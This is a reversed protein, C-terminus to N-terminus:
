KENMLHKVTEVLKILDNPKVLYESAGANIANKRDAEQTKGTFFLIPTEADTRRIIECLEVGSIDPLAYDLIYVDFAQKKMLSIAIDATECSTVSYKWDSYLPLMASVVECSDKNDDVYLIRSSVPM